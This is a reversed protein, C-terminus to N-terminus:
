FATYVRRPRTLTTEKDTKKKVGSRSYPGSVRPSDDVPPVDVCRPGIVGPISARMSHYAYTFTPAQVTLINLPREM